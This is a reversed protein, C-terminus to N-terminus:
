RVTGAEIIADAMRLADRNAAVDHVRFLAAGARRGLATTAATGVDRADVDRETVTGIFRKRSTGLLLPFELSTLEDLRALLHLNEHADKGFGIGPDFVVREHDIGAADLRATLERVFAIQDAVPDREREPRVGKRSNHMAILGAHNRSVVGAMEADGLLGTVDNVIHAGAHLAAAATEARYTDISVISGGELALARVVPVVRDIEEVIEVPEAGPRTSEGGIDVVTAGDQVLRRARTVAESVSADAGGDSFSDPTVNLIGVLHGRPGLILERERGIRWTRSRLAKM